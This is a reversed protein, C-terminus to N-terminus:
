LDDLGYLNARTALAVRSFTVGSDSSRLLMGSDGAVYHHSGSDGTILAAHLDATTGSRVPHWTADALRELVTGRAGAAVALGGDDTMAVADLPAGASAEAAFHVGGDTSSWVYGSSDVALVRHAGPDTAVGRLDGAGSITLGTWTEGIDGSRLVVGGDGVALMVGADPAIAVGRLSVVTLVPLTSWTSGADRSLALTGVDGAVLGLTSTGFKISRLTVSTHVNQWTWSQGGDTTHAVIGGDGAAWGDYNGVCTVAHLDRMTITRATWSADDFTQV